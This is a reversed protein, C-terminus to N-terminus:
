KVSEECSAIMIDNIGTLTGTRNKPLVRREKEESMLIFDEITQELEKLYSLVNQLDAVETIDIQGDFAIEEAMEAIAQGGTVMRHLRLAAFPLDRSQAARGIHQGVPCQSCYRRMISQEQYCTAYMVADQPAMIVEGREHRGITEPSYPVVTSATGRSPFGARIRAERLYDPPRKKDMESM